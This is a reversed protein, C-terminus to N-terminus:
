EVTYHEARVDGVCFGAVLSTRSKNARCTRWEKERGKNQSSSLGQMLQSPVVWRGSKTLWWYSGSAMLFSVTCRAKASRHAWSSGFASTETCALMSSVILWTRASLLDSPSSSVICTKM